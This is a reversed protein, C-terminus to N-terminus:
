KIVEAIRTITIGYDYNNVNWSGATATSQVSTFYCAGTVYKGEPYYMIVTKYQSHKIGTTSGTITSDDINVGRGGHATSDSPQFCKFCVSKEETSNYPIYYIRILKNLMNLQSVNLRSTYDSTAVFSGSWLVKEEPITSNENKLVNNADRYFKSGVSAKYEEYGNVLTRVKNELDQITTDDSVLAFMNARQEATLGDYEVQTGVWVKLEKGTNQDIIGNVCTKPIYGDPVQWNNAAMQQILDIAQDISLVQRKEKCGCIGFVPKGQIESM